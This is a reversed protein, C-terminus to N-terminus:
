YFPITIVTEGGKNDIIRINIGDRGNSVDLRLDGYQYTGEKLSEESFSNKLFQSSIKSLIQKSINDSFSELSSTTTRTSINNSTAAIKYINQAEASALLGSYNYFSGGFSPNIPRYVFNQTHGKLGTILLLVIILSLIPLRRKTQKIFGQEKPIKM